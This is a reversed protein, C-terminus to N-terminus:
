IKWDYKNAISNLWHAAIQLRGELKTILVKDDAYFM